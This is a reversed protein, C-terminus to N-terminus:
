RSLWLSSKKKLLKQSLLQAAPAQEPQTASVSETSPEETESCGALLAVSVVLVGVSSIVNRM